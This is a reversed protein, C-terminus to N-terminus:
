ARADVSGIETSWSGRQAATLLVGASITGSESLAGAVQTSLKGFCIKSYADTLFLKRKPANNHVVIQISPQAILEAPTILALEDPLVGLLNAETYRRFPNLGFPSAGEGVTIEVQGVDVTSRIYFYVKYYDYSAGNFNQEYSNGPEIELQSGIPMCTVQASWATPGLWSCFLMSLLAFRKM